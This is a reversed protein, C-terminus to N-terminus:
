CNPASGHIGDILRELGKRVLGAALLDGAATCTAARPAGDRLSLEGLVSGASM